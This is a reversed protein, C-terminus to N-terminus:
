WFQDYEESNINEQEAKNEGNNAEDRAFEEMPVLNM